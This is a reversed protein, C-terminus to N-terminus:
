LAASLFQVWSGTERVRELAGRERKRGRQEETELAKRM